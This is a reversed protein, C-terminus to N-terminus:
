DGVARVAADAYQDYLQDGVRGSIDIVQAGSEAAAMAAAQAQEEARERARAARAHQQEQGIMWEHRKRAMEADARAIERLMAAPPVCIWWAVLGMFSFGGTVLTMTVLITLMRRRARLMQERSQSPRAAPRQFDADDAEGGYDQDDSAGPRSGSEAAHSPVDDRYEQNHRTIEVHIDAEVTVDEDFEVVRSDESSLADDAPADALSDAVRDADSGAKAHPRRVWAPILFGAWIAVIALYLVTSSV